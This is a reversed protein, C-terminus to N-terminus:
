PWARAGFMMRRALAGRLPPCADLLLLGAGRLANLPGIDNSFLRVLSDTAGITARRDLRRARRYRDLLTASGPDEGTARERLTTALAWVDRLALNFGQGAVPHLTQAANGLWAVREGVPDRRYRLALPFRLRPEVRVLRVRGAMRQEVEDMYEREDLALLRDARRPSATHVIAYDERCPLLALPGDPTFREFALHHHPDAPRALTIVAHQGYDRGDIDAAGGQVGGEACAVLRARVAQGGDGELSVTVDDEGAALHAVKRGEIVPIGADRLREDLATALDGARVVYGLADLHHEAAEIRTRGFGSAQSVHISRIPTVPLGDWAGLRQLTLRTGHALALVRPDSRAAGRPRADVLAIDLGSGRLALALAMGVPGAGVILLDHPIM